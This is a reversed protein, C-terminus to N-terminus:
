NLATLDFEGASATGSIARLSLRTGSAIFLDVVANFGGPPIILVRTESAAAGTGLEITQGSSDFIHLQNINAATSAIIQVWAGTTVNTSAYANRASDAYARGKPAPTNFASGDSIRVSVPTTASEHRTALVTRLTQAGAAGSNFDAAGTANGIQSATRVGGSSAGFDNAVKGNLTSLTAETSAGTPLPLSAASVPQTVASGDVKLAGAASVTASNGGQNITALWPTTNATNGPQVTWTGSQAVSLPATLKGDISALSAIETAQNASTSAGAPLPLSAASVPQTVASGDVKLATMSAIGQVTIVDASATGATGLAPQKAATSAGTPLSVTGSVNTINWTGSQSVALPSTLKGDISSLSAIETAQNAASARTSLAVDVDSDISALSAIETAQNAATSAGAPLPLSAASVPQTVGSGDVSVVGAASVKVAVLNTGDSGAVQTASAPVAAGTASVSPNNATVTGTVTVASQDSALVVPVSAAMAKQGLSSLKGDISSLSANGTAQNAATAVGTLKGDISSLSANGTAQNAATSAGTPLSVTGSVNTVNWTGSQTAPIATQDTPLVVRLTTAAATGTGVSVPGLGDGALLGVPMPRDNGPTTTDYVPTQDVYVGGPGRKYATIASVSGSFSADVPLKGTAPDVELVYISNDSIGKGVLLAHDTQRWKDTNATSWTTVDSLPLAFAPAIGTIVAIVCLFIAAVYKM